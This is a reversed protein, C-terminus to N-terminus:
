YRWNCTKIDSSFGASVLQFFLMVRVAHCDAFFQYTWIQLNRHYHAVLMFFVSFCTLDSNQACNTFRSVYIIFIVKETRIIIIEHAQSSYERKSWKKTEVIITLSATIANRLVSTLTKMPLTDELFANNGTPIELFYIM